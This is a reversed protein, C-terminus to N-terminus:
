NSSNLATKIYYNYNTIIQMMYNFINKKEITEKLQIDVTTITEDKVKVEVTGIVQNQELPAQM